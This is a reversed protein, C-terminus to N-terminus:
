RVHYLYRASLGAEFEAIVGKAEGYRSEYLFMNGEAEFAPQLAELVGRKRQAHRYNDESFDHAEFRLGSALLAEGLPTREPALTAPDFEWDDVNGTYTLRCIQSVVNWDRRDLYLYSGRFRPLYFFDPDKIVEQNFRDVRETIQQKADESIKQRTM